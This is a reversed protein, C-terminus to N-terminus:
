NEKHILNPIFVAFVWMIGFLILLPIVVGGFPTLMTLCALFMSRAEKRQKTILLYIFYSWVAINTICWFTIMVITQNKESM